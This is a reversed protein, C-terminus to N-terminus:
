VLSNIILLYHGMTILIVGVSFIIIMNKLVTYFYWFMNKIVFNLKQFNIKTDYIDKRNLIGMIRQLQNNIQKRFTWLGSKKFFIFRLKEKSYAKCTKHISEHISSLATIWKRWFAGDYINSQTKFIGKSYIMFYKPFCIKRQRIWYIKLAWFTLFSLM